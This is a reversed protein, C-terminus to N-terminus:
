WPNVQLPIHCLAFLSNTLSKVRTSTMHQNELDITFSSFFEPPVVLEIAEFLWHMENREFAFRLKAALEFISTLRHLKKM